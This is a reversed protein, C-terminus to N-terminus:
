GLDALAARTSRRTGRETFSLELRGQHLTGAVSIPTRRSSPIERGNESSKEGRGTVIAGDQSLTLRYELQLGEFAKYSTSQIENTLGVM